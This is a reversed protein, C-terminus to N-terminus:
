KQLYSRRSKISEDATKIWYVLDRRAEEKEPFGSWPLLVCARIIEVIQKETMEQYCIVPLGRSFFRTYGELVTLLGRKSWNDGVAVLFPSRKVEEPVDEKVLKHAAFSIGKKNEDYYFAVEHERAGRKRRVPLQCFKLIGYIEKIKENDEVFFSIM